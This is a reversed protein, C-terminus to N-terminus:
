GQQPETPAPSSTPSPTITPTVTPGPTPFSFQDSVSQVQLLWAIANLLFRVNDPHLFSASYPPSSQLGQGNTAFERDGIVVIRTRAIPDEMAAALVLSTRATDTGINYEVYGSDLYTKFDTEGYFTSPSFVLSTVVPKHPSSDVELSRAGFFALEGQIGATIPHTQDINSTLFETVLVPVEVAPAPTSTPGGGRVQEPPPVALRSLSSESVVVDDQARLGLDDWMLPMLGSSAGFGSVDGFPPDTLLLLRGGEELYVWLWAIQDPALGYTSGAIVVLDADAPINNRWELTYLDAGLLDLLGALRSLGTESRDFRSAAGALESFYIHHGELRPQDQWLFDAQAQSAPRVSLVAVVVILLFTVM